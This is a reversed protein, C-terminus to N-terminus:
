IHILSLDISQMDALQQTLDEQMGEPLDGIPVEVGESLLLRVIVAAKQRNTLKRPASLDALATSM